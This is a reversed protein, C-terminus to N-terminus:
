PKKPKKNLTVERIVKLPANDWFSNDDYDINVTGDANVKSIKAPRQSLESAEGPLSSVPSMQARKHVFSLHM